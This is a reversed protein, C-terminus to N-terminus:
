TSVCIDCFHIFEAVCLCGSICMFCGTFVTGSCATMGTYSYLEGNLLPLDTPAASQDIDTADLICQLLSMMDVM